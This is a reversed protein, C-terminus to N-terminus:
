LNIYEFGSECFDQTYDIFVNDLDIITAGSALCSMIEDFSKEKFEDHGASMILVHSKKMKSFDTLSINSIQTGAEQMPDCIQIEAESDKLLDIVNIIKSNRLDRVNPKFSIGIVSVVNRKPAIKRQILSFVRNVMDENIKRATSILPLDVGYEAAKYVLYYPDVAICHGGVLGPRYEAFNWKTKAISIVETATIDIAECFSSFENMLAINVDRQINELLKSAEAVKISPAEVVGATIISSYVYRIVERVWEDDAAIVKKINFIDKNKDGPNIREPSYAVGFNRGSKLGSRDELIKSFRENVAGPYVTSEFVIVMGDSLIKALDNLFNETISLDPLNNADVPTPLTVIIVDCQSLSSISSSLGIEFNEFDKRDLDKNIDNKKKLEEIRRTSIDYGFTEFKKSLAIALPLGVYGLGVVGVRINIDVM